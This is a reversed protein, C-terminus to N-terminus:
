YSWLFRTPKFQEFGYPTLALFIYFSLERAALFSKLLKLRCKFNNNEPIQFQSVARIEWRSTFVEFTM